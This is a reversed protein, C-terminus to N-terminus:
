GMDPSTDTRATTDIDDKVEKGAVIQKLVAKIDVEEELLMIQFITEETHRKFWQYEKENLTEQSIEIKYKKM